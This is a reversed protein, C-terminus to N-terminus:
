AVEVRQMGVNAVIVGRGRVFRYVAEQLKDLGQVNDGQTASAASLTAVGPSRDKSSNDPRSCAVTALVVGCLLIDKRNM